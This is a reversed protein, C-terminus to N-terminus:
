GSAMHLIRMPMPYPLMMSFFMSLVFAFSISYGLLWSWRREGHVWLFAGLFLFTGLDFGLWPLSLVYAAFLGAVPLVASPPEGPQGVQRLKQVDLFFQLLCLVLVIATVPLVLILNLVDTSARMADICYLVVISALVLLVVLDAIRNRDINEPQRSM